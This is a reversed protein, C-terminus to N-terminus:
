QPLGYAFSGGFRLGNYNRSSLQSSRREYYNADFGVRVSHGIRYGIGTGAMYGDDVRAVPLAISELQQYDLWQRSGRAVVDWTQTLRQTVTAGLDTLAYYPASADISYVIDRDVRLGLQTGGLTYRADVAAVLGRYRPVLDDRPRFERYGVLVTGSILASPKLEFGPLVRISDASRLSSELFRDQIAEAGAVFTTLSTLRYRFQLQESDSRENLANALNTGLFTQDRDFFVHSSRATLLLSTRPSMLIDVGAGLSDRRSRTRLDIEYGPREQANAYAGTVFPLVRGLALTWKAEDRTNWTRQDEYKRFYLYQGSAKGTLLSRGAKLWITAAPGVALTTDSKPNESTNFINDDIGVDTLAIFPTFRLPGLHFRGQEPTVEQASLRACAWVLVCTFAM